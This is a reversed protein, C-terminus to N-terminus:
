LALNAVLLASLWVDKVLCREYQQTSRVTHIDSLLGFESPGSLTQFLRMTNCIYVLPPRRVDAFVAPIWLTAVNRATVVLLYTFIILIYTLLYTLRVKLFFQTCHGIYHIACLRFIKM